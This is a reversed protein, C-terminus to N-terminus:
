ENCSNYSNQSRCSAGLSLFSHNFNSIVFTGSDFNLPVTNDTRSLCAGFYIFDIREFLQLKIVLSSLSAIRFLDFNLFLIKFVLFSSDLLCKLRWPFKQILRSRLDLLHKKPFSSWLSTYFKPFSDIREGRLLGKM